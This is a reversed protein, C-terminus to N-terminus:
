INTFLVNFMVEKYFIVHLHSIKVFNYLNLYLIAISELPFRLRSLASEINNRLRIRQRAGRASTLVSKINLVKIVKNFNAM